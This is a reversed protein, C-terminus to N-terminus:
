DSSIYDNGCLVSGVTEPCVLLQITENKLRLDNPNKVYEANMDFQLGIFLRFIIERMRFTTEESQQNNGLILVWIYFFMGFATNQLIEEM